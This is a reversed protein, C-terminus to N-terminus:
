IGGNCVANFLCSIFGVPVGIIYGFLSFGEIWVPDHDSVYVGIVTYLVCLSIACCIGPWVIYKRSGTTM